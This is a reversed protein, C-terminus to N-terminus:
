IVLLHVKLLKVYFQFTINQMIRMKVQVIPLKKLTTTLMMTLKISKPIKDVEEKTQKAKDIVDKNDAKQETKTEKPVSDLDKKTQNTKEQVDKNDLDAKIDVPKGLKENVEKSTDDADQKVQNTSQEFSNDLEKGADKGLANLVQDILQADTKVKDVPIDIDIVIKGDAM